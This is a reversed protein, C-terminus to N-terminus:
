PAASWSTPHAPGRSILSASLDMSRYEHCILPFSPAGRGLAAIFTAGVGEVPAPIRAAVERVVVGSLNVLRYGVV